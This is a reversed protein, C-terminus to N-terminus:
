RLWVILSPIIESDIIIRHWPSHQTINALLGLSSFHVEVSRHIDELIVRLAPLSDSVLQDAHDPAASFLTALANVSAHQADKEGHVAVWALSSGIGEEMIRGSRFASNNSLVEIIESSIRRLTVDRSKLYNGLAPVFQLEDALLDKDEETADIANNRIAELYARTVTPERATFV